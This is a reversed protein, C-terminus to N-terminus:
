RGDLNNKKLWASLLDAIEMNNLDSFIFHTNGTIGIEPLHIVTANGGHKNITAAFIRTMTLKGRWPDQGFNSSPKSAINDGYYIVIPIKTLKNFDEPPVSEGTITGYSTTIGQPEEGEPFLFPGGGPEYSVIAKVKDSRIATKWGVTGGQSHTVLIGDGIKEFLAAGADALVTFDLPATNPTGQRHFQELAEKNRPFQVGEYYNPWYGLRFLTFMTKDIYLPQLPADAPVTSFGAQGRRPQDVLYVKFHRRLFITQFGERGDCTTEWTKM